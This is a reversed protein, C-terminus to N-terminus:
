PREVLLNLPHGMSVMSTFLGLARVAKELEAVVGAIMDDKM